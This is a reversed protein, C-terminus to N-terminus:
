VCLCLCTVILDPVCLLAVFLYVFLCVFVRYVVFMLCLAVPLFLACLSCVFVLFMDVFLCVVFLVCFCM